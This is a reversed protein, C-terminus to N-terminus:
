RSRGFTLTTQTGVGVDLGLGVQYMPYSGATSPSPYQPWSVVVTGKGRLKFRNPRSGGFDTTGGKNCEVVIGDDFMIKGLYDGHAKDKARFQIGPNPVGLPVTIWDNENPFGSWRDESVKVEVSAWIPTPVPAYTETDRTEPKEVKKVPANWWERLSNIALGIILLLIGLVVIWSYKWIDVKSVGTSSPAAGGGGKGGTAM